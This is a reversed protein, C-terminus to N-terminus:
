KVFDKKIEKLKNKSDQIKQIKQAEHVLAMFEDIDKENLDMDDSSNYPHPLAKWKVEGRYVYIRGKPVASGCFCPPSFVDIREKWNRAWPVDKSSIWLGHIFDEIPYQGNNLILAGDYSAHLEPYKKLMKLCLDHTPIYRKDLKFHKM